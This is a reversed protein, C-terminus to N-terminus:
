VCFYTNHDDKDFSESVRLKTCDHCMWPATETVASLLSLHGQLCLEAGFVCVGCVCERERDRRYSHMKPRCALM